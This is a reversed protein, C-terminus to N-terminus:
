GGHPDRHHSAADPCVDVRDEPRDVRCMWVQGDDDVRFAFVAGLGDFLHASQWGPLSFVAPATRVVSGRLWGPRAGQRSPM